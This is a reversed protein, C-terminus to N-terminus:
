RLRRLSTKHQHAPVITRDIMAYENDAGASLHLFVKEWVGSREPLDRWQIGTRYRLVVEVFLRNDAAM